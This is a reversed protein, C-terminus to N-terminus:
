RRGESIAMRLYSLKSSLQRAVAQYLLTNEALNAMEVEIDVNNGDLRQTTGMVQFVMPRFPEGAGGPRASRDLYRSLVQAFSVESKRFGPTNANAINNAIVRHRLALAELGKELAVTGRGSFAEEIM